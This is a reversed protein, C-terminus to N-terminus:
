LTFADEFFHICANGIEEPSKLDQYFVDAINRLAISGKVRNPGEGIPNKKIVRSDFFIKTVKKLM